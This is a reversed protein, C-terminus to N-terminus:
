LDFTQGPQAIEFGRALVEAAEDSQPDLAPNTNNLHTFVVRAGRGDVDGLLDMSHPILPHPIEEIPRGPVEDASYFSGDILAVDVDAVVEDVRHSWNEWRDIDPLYLLSGTPGRFVFGVTDTYEHRHPVPLLKVSLVDDITHWREPSLPQLDLRGERVMLDWPGNATLYDAMRQTCYCPTAQMGMGERGLLALGLYHGVHAHTLFIGDFPRRAAARARFAAGPILDIQRTIDPTADVM